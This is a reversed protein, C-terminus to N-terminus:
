YWWGCQMASWRRPGWVRCILTVLLALVAAILTNEVLWWFM